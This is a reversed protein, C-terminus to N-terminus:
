RIETRTWQLPDVPIGMVRMEWHLHAGTSLGTNGVRGLVEGREVTQGVQVDIQSLHWYGSMVGRGHDVVVARGRVQLEEALVVRGQAPCYIPTGESASYDVGAHYSVPPGGDYSRRIGFPSSIPADGQLPLGFAGQWRGPLTAQTTVQWLREAEAAVLAPDLLAEKEAPFSLYQVAFEGAVVQVRSYLSVEQEGRVAKLDLAYAAPPAMAPIGILTRYHGQGGDFFLPQGDYTGSLSVEGETEVYVQVTQGQMVVTPLLTLDLFPLPLNSAPEGSPIFLRQGVHIVNPNAIENAQAVAWVSVGYRAAIRAMTDGAQVVYVQGATGADPEDTAVPVSLRQGVYITNPNALHNRQAMTEVGTGYRRAILALTDGPQVVYVAASGAEGPPPTEVSPIALRQGVELVNPDELGNAAVLADVTIGYMQAIAFLTEGAQVVHVVQPDQSPPVAGAHAVLAFWLLVVVGTRAAQKWAGM